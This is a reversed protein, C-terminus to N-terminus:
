PAEPLTDIAEQLNAATERLTEAQRTLQERMSSYGYGHMSAIAAALKGVNGLKWDDLAMGSSLEFKDVRARLSDLEAKASKAKVDVLYDLTRAHEKQMNEIRNVVMPNQMVDQTAREYAARILGLAFLKHMTDKPRDLHAAPKQVRLGNGTATMWGWIAMTFGILSRLAERSSNVARESM